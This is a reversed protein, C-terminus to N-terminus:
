GFVRPLVAKIAGAWMGTQQLTRQADPKLGALAGLTKGVLMGSVWGSGMGTAIRAVDAPSVFGSQLSMGAADVLGSAAAQMQPPTNPDQWIAQTFQNVPIIPVFVGVHGPNAGPQPALLGGIGGFDAEKVSAYGHPNLWPTPEPVAETGEHPVPPKFDPFHKGFGGARGGWYLAPLGGALAGIMAGSRRLKGREFYERPLLQEGLWGAGYGAGAGVLGSMLTSALTNPGGMWNTLPGNQWGAAQAIPQGISRLETGQKILVWPTTGFDDPFDDGVTSAVKEIGAVQLLLTDWAAQDEDSVTELHNVHALKECPDYWVRGAAPLDVALAHINVAVPLVAEAMERMLVPVQAWAAKELQSHLQQDM